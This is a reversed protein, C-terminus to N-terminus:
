ISFFLVFCFGWFRSHFLSIQFTVLLSEQFSSSSFYMENARRPSFPSFSIAFTYCAELHLHGENPPNWKNVSIQPVSSYKSLTGEM